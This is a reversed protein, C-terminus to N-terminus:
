ADLGIYKKLRPIMTVSHMALKSHAFTRGRSSKMVRTIIYHSICDCYMLSRDICLGM